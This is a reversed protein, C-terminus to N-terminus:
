SFFISQKFKMANPIWKKNQNGSFPYKIEFQCAAYSYFVKNKIHTGTKFGFWDQM